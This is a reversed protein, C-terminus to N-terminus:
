KVDINMSVTKCLRCVLGDHEKSCATYVYHSWLVDNTTQLALVRAAKM